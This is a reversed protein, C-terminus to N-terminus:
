PKAGLHRASGQPHLDNLPWPARVPLEGSSMCPLPEGFNAGLQTPHGAHLAELDAATMRSVVCSPEFGGRAATPLRPSAPMVRVLSPLTEVFITVAAGPGTRTTGCTSLYAESISSLTGPTPSAEQPVAFALTRGLKTGFETLLWGM